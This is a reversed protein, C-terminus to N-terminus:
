QGGKWQQYKDKLGETASPHTARWGEYKEKLEMAEDRNQYKLDNFKQRSVYSEDSSQSEKVEDWKKRVLEAKSEAAETETHHANKWQEWQERREEETGKMESAEAPHDDKFKEWLLVREQLTPLSEKAQRAQELLAAGQEASIQGYQDKLAQAEQSAEGHKWHQKWKEVTAADSTAYALAPMVLALALIVSFACKKM